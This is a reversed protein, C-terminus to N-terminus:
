SCSCLVGIGAVKRPPTAEPMYASRRTCRGHQQTDTHAPKHSLGVATVVGELPYALEQFCGLLLPSQHLSAALAQLQTYPPQQQHTQPLTSLTNAPSHMYSQCCLQKSKVASAALATLGYSCSTCQHKPADLTQSSQTRTLLMDQQTRHTKVVRQPQLQEATHRYLLGANPAYGAADKSSRTEAVPLVLLAARLTHGSTTRHWHKCLAHEGTHRRTHPTHPTYCGDSCSSFVQNRQMTSKCVAALM